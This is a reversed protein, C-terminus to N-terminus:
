EFLVKYNSKFNDFEILSEDLLTEYKKLDIFRNKIIEDLQTISSALRNATINLAGGKIGHFLKHLEDLNELKYETNKIVKLNEETSLIFTDLIDKIVDKDGIEKFFLNYDFSDKKEIHSDDMNTSIENTPYLTDNIVKKLKNKRLPKQLINDFINDSSKGDMFIDATLAIISNKYGNKQLIKTATIGDMIPMQIDMFIIDFEGLNEIIRIAEQGNDSTTVNGNLDSIIKTLITRNLSYDDVILFNKGSLNLDLPTEIKKLPKGGIVYPIDFFFTCGKNKNNKVQLKGGLLEVFKRALGLGLGTGGYVRSISNDVQEFDDFITDLKDKPIGIGTDCVSFFLREKSNIIMKKIILHVSGEHTFKIANSILNTLIQNLMQADIILYKESFTKSIDFVADNKITKTSISHLHELLDDINESQLNVKYKNESAKSFDLISNVINLLKKSEDNIVKSFQVIEEKDNTEMLFDSFGMISNMPTRIEHSMKALFDSKAQESVKAKNLSIELTKEYKVMESIDRLVVLINHYQDKKKLIKQSYLINKNKIKRNDDIIEHEPNIDVGFIKKYNIEYIKDGLKLMEIVNINIDIVAGNKNFIIVGEPITLFLEYALKTYDVNFLKYRTIALFMGISQFTIFTSGLLPTDSLGFMPAVANTFITSFYALDQGILIIKYMKRHLVNLDTKIKKILMFHAFLWLLFSTIVMAPVYLKQNITFIGWNKQVFGQVILDTTVGLITFIFVFGLIIKMKIDFKKHLIAYITNVFLFTLPIWFFTQIRLLPLIYQHPIGIWLIVDSLEWLLLFILFILYSKSKKNKYDKGLINAFLFFNILFATLPFFIYWNM